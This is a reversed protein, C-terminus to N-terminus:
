NCLVLTVGLTQKHAMLQTKLVTVEKEQLTWSWAKWRKSLFTAGGRIEHAKVVMQLQVLKARCSKLVDQLDVSVEQHPLGNNKSIIKQIQALISCLSNLEQALERIDSPASQLNDIFQYLQISLSTGISIIGSISAIISIPDAM